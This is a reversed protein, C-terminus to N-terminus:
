ARVHMTRWQGGPEVTRERNRKAEDLAEKPSLGRGEKRAGRLLTYERQPHVPGRCLLPRLATEGQAHMQLIHGSNKIPGAILRLGQALDYDLRELIDLKQNLAARDRKSLSKSWELM